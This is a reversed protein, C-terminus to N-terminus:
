AKSKSALLCHHQVHLDCICAKAKDFLLTGASRCLLRQLQLPAGPGAAWAQWTLSSAPTQRRTRLMAMTLILVRPEPHVTPLRHRREAVTTRKSRGSVLSELIGQLLLALLPQYHHLLVKVKSEPNRRYPFQPKEILSRKSSLERERCRKNVYFGFSQFHASCDILIHM